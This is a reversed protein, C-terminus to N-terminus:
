SGAPPDFTVAPRLRRRVAMLAPTLLLWGPARTGAHDWIQRLVAVLDRVGVCGLGPLHPPEVVAGTVARSLLGPM